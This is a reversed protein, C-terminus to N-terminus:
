KYLHKALWDPALNRVVFLSTKLFGWIVGYHKSYFYYLTSPEGGIPSKMYKIRESLSVGWKRYRQLPNDYGLAVPVRTTFVGIGNKLATFGYDVDGADHHLRSDIIGITDVIARHVLVVNGNMHKVAQMKGNPKFVQSSTGDGGGYIVEKNDNEIIGTIVANCNSLKFCEMLESLANKYLVIDDNLWLYYEYNGKLAEKWATYMGRSWYLNGDGRIIKVAPYQEHVANPTGDTCGDDVLFVDVGNNIAFLSSLCSLTKERRDHCTMLAAIKIDTKKEM